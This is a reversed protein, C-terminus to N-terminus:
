GMGLIEIKKMTNVEKFSQDYKMLHDDPCVWLDTWGSHLLFYDVWCICLTEETRDIQQHCSHQSTFHSSGCSSLGLSSRKGDRLRSLDKGDSGRGPDSLVHLGWLPRSVFKFETPKWGCLYHYIERPDSNEFDRSCLCWYTISPCNEAWVVLNRTAM